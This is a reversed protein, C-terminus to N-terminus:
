DIVEWLHLALLGANKCQKVLADDVSLLLSTGPPFNAAVKLLSVDTAGLSAVLEPAMRLLAITEENM